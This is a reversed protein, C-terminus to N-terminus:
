FLVVKQHVSLHYPLGGAMRLVFTDRRLKPYISLWIFYWWFGGWSSPKDSYQKQHNSKLTLVLLLQLIMKMKFIYQQRQITYQRNNVEHDDPNLCLSHLRYTHDCRLREFPDDNSSIIEFGFWGGRGGESMTWFSCWFLWTIKEHEPSPWTITLHLDPSPWIELTKQARCLYTSTFSTKSSSQTLVPRMM